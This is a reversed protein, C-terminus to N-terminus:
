RQDTGSHLDAIRAAVAQRIWAGPADDPLAHAALQELAAVEAAADDDGKDPNKM